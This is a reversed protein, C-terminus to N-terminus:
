AKVAVAEFDRDLAVYGLYVLYYGLCFSLVDRIKDRMKEDIHGIYVIYGRRSREEAIVPWIKCLFLAVGDIELRLASKNVSPGVTRRRVLEVTSEEARLKRRHITRHHRRHDCGDLYVRRLQRERAVRGHLRSRRGPQVKWLDLWTHSDRDNSCRWEPSVIPPM